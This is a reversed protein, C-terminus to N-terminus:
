VSLLYYCGLFARMEELSHFGDAMTNFDDPSVAQKVRERSSAPYRTIGLNHAFGVALYILHTIERDLYSSHNGRRM